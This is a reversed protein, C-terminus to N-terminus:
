AGKRERKLLLRAKALDKETNINFFCLGTPDCAQVEEELYVVDLADLLEHIKLDGRAVREAVIPLIDRRYIAFLPEILRGQRPVVARAGPARDMMLRALELCAFPMDCAMVFIFKSCAAELATYIGGLPGKGPVLDPVVRVHEGAYASLPSDERDVVLIIEPFLAALKELMDEILPRGTLELLPKDSNLRRGKGGALLVGTFTLAERQKGGAPM